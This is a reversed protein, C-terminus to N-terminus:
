RSLCCNSTLLCEESPMKQILRLLLFLRVKISSLHFKPLNWFNYLICRKCINKRENKWNKRIQIIQDYDARKIRIFFFIKESKPQNELLIKVNLSHHSFILHLASIQYKVKKKDTPFPCCNVCLTWQWSKTKTKIPVDRFYCNM